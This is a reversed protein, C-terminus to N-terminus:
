ISLASIMSTLVESLLISLLTYNIYESFTRMYRDIYNENQVEARHKQGKKRRKNYPTQFIFIYLTFINAMIKKEDSRTQKTEENKKLGKLSYLYEITNNM